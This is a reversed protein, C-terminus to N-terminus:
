NGNMTEGKKILHPSMDSILQQVCNILGMLGGIPIPLYVIIFPIRTVTTLKTTAQLCLRTGYYVLLVYFSIQAFYQFLRLICGWIKSKSNVFESFVTITAFGGHKTLAGISLMIIGVYIYRMTEETWTIGVGFVYRATVQYVAFIVLTTSALVIIHSYVKSFIEILAKWM